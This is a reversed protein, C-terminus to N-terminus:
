NYRILNNLYWSSLNKKNKKTEKKLNKDIDFYQYACGFNCVCARNYQAVSGQFKYIQINNKKYNVWTPIVGVNIHIIGIM